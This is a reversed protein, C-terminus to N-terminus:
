KMLYLITKLGKIGFVTWSLAIKQDPGIKFVPGSKM